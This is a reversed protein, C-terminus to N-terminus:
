RVYCYCHQNIKHNILRYNRRILKNHEKNELVILLLKLLKILLVKKIHWVNLHWIVKHYHNWLFLLIKWKKKKKKYGILM